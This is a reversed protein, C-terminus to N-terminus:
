KLKNHNYLKGNCMPTSTQTVCEINNPKDIIKECEITLSGTIDKQYYSNVRKIGSIKYGDDCKIVFDTQCDITQINIFLCLLFFYILGMTMDFNDPFFSIM